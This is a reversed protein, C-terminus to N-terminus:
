KNNIKVMVNDRWFSVDEDKKLNTIVDISFNGNSKPNKVFTVYDTESFKIILPKSVELPIDDGELLELYLKDSDNANFFQSNALVISSSEKKAEKLLRTSNADNPDSDIVCSNILIIFFSLFVYKM